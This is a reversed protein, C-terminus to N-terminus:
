AVVEVLAGCCVCCFLTTDKPGNQDEDDIPVLRQSACCSPGAAATSRERAPERLKRSLDPLPHKLADDGADAPTLLITM